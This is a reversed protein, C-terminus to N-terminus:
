RTAIGAAKMQMKITRGSTARSTASLTLESTQILQYSLKKLRDTAPTAHAIEIILAIVDIFGFFNRRAKSM